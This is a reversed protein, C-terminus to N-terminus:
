RLTLAPTEVQEDDEAAEAARRATQRYRDFLRRIEDVIRQEDLKVERDQEDVVPVTTVEKLPDNHIRRTIQCSDLGPSPPLTHAM